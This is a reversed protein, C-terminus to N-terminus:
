MLTFLKGFDKKDFSNVKSIPCLEDPFVMENAILTNNKRYGVVYAIPNSTIHNKARKIFEYSLGNPYVIKKNPLNPVNPKFHKKSSQYKFHTKRFLNYYQNIQEITYIYHISVLRKPSLSYSRKDPRKIGVEIDIGQNVLDQIEDFQTIPAFVKQHGIFVLKPDEAFNKIM